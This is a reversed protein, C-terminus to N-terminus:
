REPSSNRPAPVYYAGRVHTFVSGSCTFDRGLQEEGSSTTAAAASAEGGGGARVIRRIRRATKGLVQFVERRERKVLARARAACLVATPADHM